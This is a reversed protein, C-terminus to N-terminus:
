RKASSAQDAAKPWKCAAEIKKRIAEWGTLVFTADRRANAGEPVSITLRTADPLSRLLEVTDGAFTATKADASLNWIQRVISQDNIQRDVALARMPQAPWTRETRILLETQGARCRVALSSPGGQSRSTPLTVAVILPSYDVPSTTESVVWSSGPPATAPGSAAKPSDTKPSDTKPLDTRPSDTRSADNKSVDIQPTDIKAQSKFADSRSADSKSADIKPTDTKPMDTKSAEIKSEEIKPGETEPAETKQVDIKPADPQVATTASQAAPAPAPEPTPQVTASENPPTVEGSPKAPNADGSGKHPDDKTNARADKEVNEQPASQTAAAQPPAGLPASPSSPVPSPAEPQKSSATAGTPADPLLVHELCELQATRATQFCQLRRAPDNTLKACTTDADRAAQICLELGNGGGDAAQAVCATGAFALAIVIQRAPRM